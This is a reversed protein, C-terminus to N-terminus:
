VLEVLEKCIIDGLEADGVEDDIAEIGHDLLIERIKDKM